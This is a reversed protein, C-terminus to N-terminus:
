LLPCRRESKEPIISVGERLHSVAAHNPNCQLLPGSIVALEEINAPWQISSLAGKGGSSEFFSANQSKSLKYVYTAVDLNGM